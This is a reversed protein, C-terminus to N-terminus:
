GMGGMMLMGVFAVVVALLIAFLVIKTGKFRRPDFM